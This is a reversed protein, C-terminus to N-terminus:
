RGSARLLASPWQTPADSFASPTRPLASAGTLVGAHPSHKHGKLQTLKSLGAREETRGARMQLVAVM